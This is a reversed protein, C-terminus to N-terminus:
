RVPLLLTIQAILPLQALRLFPDRRPIERQVIGPLAMTEPHHKAIIHRWRLPPPPRTPPRDVYALPPPPARAHETLGFGNLM